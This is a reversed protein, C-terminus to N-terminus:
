KYINIAIVGNIFDASNRGAVTFWVGAIMGVYASWNYEIAPALSVQESSPLKVRNHVGATRGRHGSFRSKDTHTYDIDLALALQQTLTYEMGLLVALKNGPFAKGHTGHGGGYSNFGKVHVPTQFTYTTAFRPAFYHHNGFYFLRSMVLSLAPAWSGSGGIDTGKKKAELKQYKGIPLNLGLTMKVGPWWTGPRDSVVQYDTAIPLDNLVWKSAGDTHNWSFQPVFQFDWDKVLGFQLPQQTTINYFNPISVSDWEANYIGKGVNVFLYPEANFHGAPVVHGSPTLLPGTLWPVRKSSPTLWWPYDKPAAKARATKAQTSPTDAILTELDAMLPASAFCLTLLSCLTSTLARATM